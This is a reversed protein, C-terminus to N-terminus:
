AHGEAAARRLIEAVNVPMGSRKEADREQRPSTGNQRPSTGTQRPASGDARPNEGDKRRGRKAPPPPSEDRRTSTSTSPMADASANANRESQWREAAANRAIGQRRSREADFGRIRYCHGACLGVLGSDVLRALAKPRVSRPLEPTTPWDKEARVLLRMWAAFAADDAYVEPFERIFDDYYFRAFKRDPKSM